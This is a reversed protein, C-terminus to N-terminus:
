TDYFIYDIKRAVTVARTKFTTIPTGEYACHWATKQALLALSPSNPETNFDGCFIAPVAESRQQATHAIFFEIQKTRVEEFEAKAKLHTAYVRLLRQSPLHRLTLSWFYQSFSAFNIAEVGEVKFVARRVAILVGDDTSKPKWHVEYEGDLLSKYLQIDKVEM